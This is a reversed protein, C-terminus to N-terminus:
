NYTNYKKSGAHLSAVLSAILAARVLFIIHDFIFGFQWVLLEIFNFLM